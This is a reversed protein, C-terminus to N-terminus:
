APAQAQDAAQAEDAAERDDTLDVFEWWWVHTEGPSEKDRVVATAEARVTKNGDTPRFEEGEPAKVELRWRPGTATTVRENDGPFDIELEPDAKSSGSQDPSSEENEWEGTQVGAVTQRGEGQAIRVWLYVEERRSFEIPGEATVSKGDTFLTLFFKPRMTVAM